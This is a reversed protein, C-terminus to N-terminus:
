RDAPSPPDVRSPDVSCADAGLLRGLRTRHRAVLRYVRETIVPMSRAAAAVPKGGPLSRFLPDVLAGASYVRGGPSVLHASDM